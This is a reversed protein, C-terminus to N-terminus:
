SLGSKRRSATILQAIKEESLKKVNMKEGLAFLEEWALSKALAPAMFAALWFDLASKSLRWLRGVKRGPVVGARLYREMVQPNIKLYGAAESVTFVQSQLNNM